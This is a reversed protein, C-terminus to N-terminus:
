RGNGLAMSLITWSIQKDINIQKDRLTAQNGARETISFRKEHSDERSISYPLIVHKKQEVKEGCNEKPM